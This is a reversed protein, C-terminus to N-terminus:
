QNGHNNDEFSSEVDDELIDGPVEAPQDDTIENSPAAAGLMRSLGEDMGALKLTPLKKGKESAKSAGTIEALLRAAAAWRKDNDGLVERWLAGILKKLAEDGIGIEELIGTMERQVQKSARITNAISEIQANTVEPYKPALMETVAASVDGNNAVIMRAVHKAVEPRQHRIQPAKGEGQSSLGYGEPKTSTKKPVTLLDEPTCRLLWEDPGPPGHTVARRAAVSGDSAASAVARAFTVADTASDPGPIEAPARAPGADATATATSSKRHTTRINRANKVAM